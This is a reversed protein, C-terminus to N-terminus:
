RVMVRGLLPDVTLIRGGAALPGGRAAGDPYFRVEGEGVTVTVVRARRMATERAAVLRARLAAMAATGDDGGARPLLLGAVLALVALVVLLEILTFGAEDRM